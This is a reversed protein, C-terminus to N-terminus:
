RSRDAIARIEINEIVRGRINETTAQLMAMGIDEGGIYIGRFPKMLKALPHFIRYLRPSNDSLEGDIFGPRWCVANGLSMLEKETEAKVRAWMFRSDLRTGQGSIFHFVANPSQIKLIQAAALAFDHTIRRYEQQGSVQTVSKGLCYLCADVDAFAKSVAAYDQYDEHLFAHLKNNIISIPRRSVARVEEVIPRSICAKLISGGATGTAGFIVVKM